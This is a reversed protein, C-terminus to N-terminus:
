NAGVPNTSRPERVKAGPDARWRSLILRANGYDRRVLPTFCPALLLSEFWALEAAVIAGDALWGSTALAAVARPALGRGYPPDLLLLECPARARGPRLADRAMITVQASTGLADANKRIIRRAAADTEILTAHLAGRSLAELGLAGTGAFADIVRVGIPLDPGGWANHALIDFLAERVLESTPRIRRNAPVALRRGRFRGGVIRM